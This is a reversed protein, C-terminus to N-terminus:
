SSFAGWTMVTQADDSNEVLSCRVADPLVVQINLPMQSM